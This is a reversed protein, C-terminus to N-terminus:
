EPVLLVARVLEAVSRARLKEMIHARHNEVTRVSIGLEAGIASSTLGQAVRTAIELERPTLLALRAERTMDRREDQKRQVAVELAEGVKDLLSQFPFPKQIFDYAGQKMAQVAMGVEAYGTMFVIPLRPAIEGLRKQVQLGSLGPLRMDSVLCACASPDFEDLFRAPDDFCCITHGTSSLVEELVGLFQTDDDLVYITLGGTM